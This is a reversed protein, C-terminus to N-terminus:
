INGRRRRLGRGTAPILLYIRFLQSVTRVGNTEVFFTVNDKLDSVKDSPMTGNELLRLVIELRSSHWKRRENLQELEVQRENAQGKHKKKTNGLTEIEAEAVEVQRTLEEIMQELWQRAEHKAKEAPDLRMAAILGEKSFAKTKMEKECAKFKEM